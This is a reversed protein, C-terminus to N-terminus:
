GLVRWFIETSGSPPKADGTRCELTYSEVGEVSSRPLDYNGVIEEGSAETNGKTMGYKRYVKLDGGTRGNFLYVNVGGQGVVEMAPLDFPAWDFHLRPAGSRVLGTYLKRGFKCMRQVPKGWARGLAEVIYDVPDGVDAFLRRRLATTPGVKRFYDDWAKADDGLRYTFEWHSAIDLVTGINLDGEYQRSNRNAKKLRDMVLDCQVPNLFRPIRIGAVEGQFMKVLDDRTIERLSNRNIATWGNSVAQNEM